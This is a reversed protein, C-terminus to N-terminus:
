ELDEVETESRKADNINKFMLFMEYSYGIGFLIIAVTLTITETPFLIGIFLPAAAIVYYGELLNFSHIVRLTLWIIMFAWVSIEFSTTFAEGHIQLILFIKLVMILMMCIILNFLQTMRPSQIDVLSNLISKLIRNMKRGGSGSECPKRRQM